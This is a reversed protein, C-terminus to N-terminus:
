KQNKALLYIVYFPFFIILAIVKFILMTVNYWTQSNKHHM